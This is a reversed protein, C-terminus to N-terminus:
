SAPDRWAIHIRSPDFARGLRSGRKAIDVSEVVLRVLARRSDIDMEEWAGALGGKREAYYTVLEMGSVAARAALAAEQRRKLGAMANGFDRMSITGEGVMISLEDMQEQLDGLDDHMASPRRREVKVRESLADIVAAIAVEEVRDAAISSGCGGDPRSVCRYSSYPPTGVTIRHMERPTGCVLCHVLGSLLAKRGKQPLPRAMLAVRACLAEWTETDLIPAWQAEGIIDHVDRQRGHETIRRVRHRLGATRPNSVCLKVTQAQWKLGLPTRHGAENAWRAVQSLSDGSLIRQAMEVIVAAEAPVIDGSEFGIPEVAGHVRSAYGYPRRGWHPRGNEADHRLKSRQRESAMDAEYAAAAIHVRAGLRGAASSLDVVSGSAQRLLLGKSEAMDILWELEKPQRLLRDSNTVIVADVQGAEVMAVLRLWDEREKRAYRSASRDNDALKAVVTWGESRALTTAADTDKRQRAVGAAEGNADRSIRNYTACRITDTSTTTSTNRRPAM